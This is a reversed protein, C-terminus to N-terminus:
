SSASTREDCSSSRLVRDWEEWKKLTSSYENRTSRSLTKARLYSEVATNFTTQM